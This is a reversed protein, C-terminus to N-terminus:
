RDTGGRTRWRLAKVLLPELEAWAAVGRVGGIGDTTQRVGNILFGPTGDIKDTEVASKLINTLREAAAKDALCRQGAAAPLGRAAMFDVLGGVKGLEAVQKDKPLASIRAATADDIDVFPKIWNEQNAFLLEVNAAQKPAAANCAVLLSAAYDPGNRVFSRFEFNLKGTAIYKAKLVPVGDKQFARCHPCTFSGYEVLKVKAQPNGIMFGAPTAVITRNWDHKVPAAALPAAFALAAALAVSRIIM